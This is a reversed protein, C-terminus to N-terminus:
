IEFLLNTLNTLFYMVHIYFFLFKIFFFFFTRHLQYIKFFPNSLFLLYVSLKCQLENLLQLFQYFTNCWYFLAQLFISTMFCFLLSFLYIQCSYHYNSFFNLTKDYLFFGDPLLFPTIEFLLLNSELM